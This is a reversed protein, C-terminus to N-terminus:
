VDYTLTTIDDVNMSDLYIVFGLLFHHHNTVDGFLDSNSVKYVDLKLLLVYNNSNDAITQRSVRSLDDSKLSDDNDLIKISTM